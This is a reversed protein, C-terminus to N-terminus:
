WTAPPNSQRDVVQYGEPLSFLAPEPEVSELETVTFTQKGIRPDSRVSELNIGLRQSHWYELVIEIPRDNGVAGTKITTTQRTGVLDVGFMNKAGLNEVGPGPRAQPTQPEEDSAAPRYTTLDCAKRFTMCSYLTHSNPDAIQIANMRSKMEGGKPVLLWREQYVRGSSDRAIHRTNAITVSGGEAMPRAWETALTATFPANPIPPIVISELVERAGGDQPHMPQQAMGVSASLCVLFFASARM